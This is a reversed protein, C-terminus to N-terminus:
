DSHNSTERSAKIRSEETDQTSPASFSSFVAHVAFTLGDGFIVQSRSPFFVASSRHFFLEIWTLSSACGWIRMSGLLWVRFGSSGVGSGFSFELKLGVGSVRFGLVM